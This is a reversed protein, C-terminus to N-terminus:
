AVGEAICRHLAREFAQVTQAIDDDSHAMSLFGNTRMVDVGELLLAKRLFPATTGWGGLLQQTDADLNSFDGSIIKPPEGKCTKFISSRGYAFAPYGMRLCVENVGDILLGTARDAKQNPEGTKVLELTTVGAAAVIPNSNWTGTHPVSSYRMWEPDSRSGLVEMIQAKGAVTGAAIGGGVVKGLTTLDPTIGYLEQAGGRAHRFGTVVEDFILVVHHKTALDRLQQLFAPDSPVTDDFAGGPEVIIGAIDDDAVLAAAVPESVNFPLAIVTEQTAKPVGASWPVTFPATVAITVADHWGHFNSMFKIIKDKGTFARAVRIAMETAEGGSATFRVQEAAPVLECVLEAWRLGSETEGGAHFGTTAAKQVAEVVAPHSHGLLMAGHGLWYDIYEHGDVDRKRSGINSEIFLPFPEFRRANHTIGGPSTQKQREFL